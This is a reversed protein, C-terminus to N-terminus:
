QGVRRAALRRLTLALTREGPRAEPVPFNHQPDTLGFFVVLRPGFDYRWCPQVVRALLRVYPTGLQRAVGRLDLLPRRLLSPHSWSEWRSIPNVGTMNVVEGV